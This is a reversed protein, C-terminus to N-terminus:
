RHHSPSAVQLITSELSTLEERLLALRQIRIISPIVLRQQLRDLERVAVEDQEFYRLLVNRVTGEHSRCELSRKSSFMM